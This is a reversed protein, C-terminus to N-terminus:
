CTQLGLRPQFNNIYRFWIISIMAPYAVSSGILLSFAMPLHYDLIQTWIFFYILISFIYVVNGVGFIYLYSHWRNEFSFDALYEAQLITGSILFPLVGIVINIQNEFWFYSDDFVNHSPILCFLSGSACALLPGCLTSLYHLSLCENKIM